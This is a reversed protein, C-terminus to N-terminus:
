LRPSSQPKTPLTEQNPQPLNQCRQNSGKQQLPLPPVCTTEIEIEIEM